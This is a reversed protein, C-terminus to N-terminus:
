RGTNLLRSAERKMFQILAALQQPRSALCDEGTGLYAQRAELLLPQLAAPLRPIAWDAAVDKSVVKGTAASYWVRALTLVVNREDDAWDAPSNWLKLTDTLAKFFDSEPVPDFFQEAPPGVLAISRQRAKTLLIALDIDTRAPEVIGAAIEERLWEGFQLERRPPYRWPVIDRHVLVTVELPRLANGRPQGFPASVDLLDVALARRVDEKLRDAVTVLLDLDSRPKLGGMVASGYLHIALLTSALHREIVTRAMSLQASVEGPAVNQIVHDLEHRTNTEDASPLHAARERKRREREREIDALVQGPEINQAPRAVIADVTEEVIRYTSGARSRHVLGFDVLFRRVTVHDFVYPSAFSGLWAKLVRNVEAETLPGKGRLQSAALALLIELDRRRRPVNTLLGNSLLRRLTQLVEAREYPM